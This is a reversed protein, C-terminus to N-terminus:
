SRLQRYRRRTSGSADVVRERITDEGQGILWQIWSAGILPGLHSQQQAVELRSLFDKLEQGELSPLPFALTRAQTSEYAEWNDEGTSLLLGRPILSSKNEQDAGMRNRTTSDSYSQVLNPLSALPM